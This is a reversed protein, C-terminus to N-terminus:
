AIKMLLEPLYVLAGDHSYHNEKLDFGNNLMVQQDGMDGDISIQDKPTSTNGIDLEMEPIVNTEITPPYINKSEESEEPMLEKRIIIKKRSEEKQQTQLVHPEVTGNVESDIEADANKNVPVTSDSDSPQVETPQTAM